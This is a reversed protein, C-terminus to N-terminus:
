GRQKTTAVSETTTGSDMWSSCSGSSGYAGDAVGGSPMPYPRTPVPLRHPREVHKIWRYELPSQIGDTTEAVIDTILARRAIRGRRELARTLKAPSTLRPVSLTLFGILEADDEAAACLDLVTDAVLTRPPSALSGSPRATARQRVVSLWSRSALGSTSDVGLQIPLVPAVLSELGRSLPRNARGVQRWASRSCVRVSAM